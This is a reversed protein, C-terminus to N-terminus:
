LLLLQRVPNAAVVQPITRKGSDVRCAILVAEIETMPIAHEQWRDREICRLAIRCEAIQEETFGACFLRRAPDHNIRWGSKPASQAAFHNLTLDQAITRMVHETRYPEGSSYHPWNDLSITYEYGSHWDTKVM